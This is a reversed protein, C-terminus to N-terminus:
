FEAADGVKVQQRVRVSRKLSPDAPSRGALVKIRRATFRKLWARLAKIGIAALLALWDLADM